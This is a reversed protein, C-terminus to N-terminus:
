RFNALLRASPHGNEELWVASGLELGLKTGAEEALAQSAYHCFRRPEFAIVGWWEGSLDVDDAVNMATRFEALARRSEEPVVSLDDVPALNRFVVVDNKERAPVSTAEIM